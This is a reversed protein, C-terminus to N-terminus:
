RAIPFTYWAYSIAFYLAVGGFLVGYSSFLAIRIRFAQVLWSRSGSFGYIAYFLRAPDKRLAKATAFVVVLPQGCRDCSLERLKSERWHALSGMIVYQTNRVELCDPRKICRPKKM